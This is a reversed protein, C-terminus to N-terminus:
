DKWDFVARSVSVLQAGKAPRKNGRRSETGIDVVPVEGAEIVSSQKSQVYKSKTSLVEFEVSKTAAVNLGLMCLVGGRQKSQLSKLTLQAEGDKDISILLTCRISTEIHYRIFSGSTYATSQIGFLNRLREFRCWGRKYDFVVDRIAAHSEELRKKM